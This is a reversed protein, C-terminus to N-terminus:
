KMIMEYANVGDGIYPEFTTEHYYKNKTVSVVFGNNEYLKIAGFNKISVHLNLQYKPYKNKIWKLCMDGYGKRRHNKDIGISIITIKKNNEIQEIEDSDSNLVSESVNDSDYEFENNHIKLLVFGVINDNDIIGHVDYLKFSWYTMMNPFIDCLLIYIKHYLIDNENTIKKIEM